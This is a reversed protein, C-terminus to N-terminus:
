DVKYNNPIDCVYSQHELNVFVCQASVDEPSYLCINRGPPPLKCKQIYTVNRFESQSTVLEQCVLIIKQCNSYFSCIDTVMCYLGDNMRVCTSCTKTVRSYRTSHIETGNVELRAYHALSPVEGYWAAFLQVAAQELSVSKLPAGLLRVSGTERVSHSGIIRDRLDALRLPLEVFKSATRLWSKMLVREAIQFPVGQAATVLKVLMGNGNEFPFTSTGWLPGLMEVSKTLHALQHVNFTAVSDDYVTRVRSLFLSLLQDATQLDADTVTAQLLLFLAQCLLAFHNIASEDLIGSLCPLSYYLLWYLWETAKWNKREKVPRPLRCFSNPPKIQKMRMEVEKLHKKVKYKKVAVWIDTLQQTVGELVCHMYDPPLCWVLNFGKLLILPSPGKLGRVM